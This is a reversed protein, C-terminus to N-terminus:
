VRARCSARGIEVHHPRLPSGTKDRRLEPLTLAIVVRTSVLIWLVFLFMQMNLMLFFFLFFIYWSWLVSGCSPVKLKERRTHYLEDQPGDGHNGSDM